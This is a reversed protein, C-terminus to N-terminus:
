ATLCLMMSAAQMGLFAGGKPTFCKRLIRMQVVLTACWIREQGVRSDM